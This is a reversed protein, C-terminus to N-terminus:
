LIGKAERHMDALFLIRQKGDSSERRNIDRWGDPLRSMRSPNTNIPDFGFKEHLDYTLEEAKEKFSPKDPADIRVLAHLSKGASDVISVIPLKIHALVGLQLDLPLDDSELLMYRFALIDTDCITGDKGSGGFPMVPNVRWWGGAKCRIMKGSNLHKRWGSTTKVEDEGIPKGELNVKTVVAVGEEPKFLAECATLFGKGDTPKIPSAELLDAEEVKGGNAEIFKLANDKWKEIQEPTKPLTERKKKYTPTLSFSSGGSPSLTKNFLGDIARQIEGDDGALHAYGGKARAIRWFDEPTLIIGQEDACLKLSTFVELM